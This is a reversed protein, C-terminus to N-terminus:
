MLQKFIKTILGKNTVYKVFIKEWETPQWKMKNINEKAICFSTLKILDQKNIKTKTEM